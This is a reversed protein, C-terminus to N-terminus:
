FNTDLKEKASEEHKLAVNVNTAAIAVFAFIFIGYFVKKM